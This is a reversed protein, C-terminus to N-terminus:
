KRTRAASVAKKKKQVPSSKTATLSYEETMDYVNFEGTYSGKFIVGLEDDRLEYRVTFIEDNQTLTMSGGQAAYEGYGDTFFWTGICYDDEDVFGDGISFDCFEDELFAEVTYTGSKPADAEESFIELVIVNGTGEWTATDFSSDSLYICWNAIGEPQGDYYEGWYEMDGYDFSNTEVIEYGNPGENNGNDGNGGPNQPQDNGNDGNGGPNQPQNNENGGNNGGNNGCNCNCSCQNEPQNDKKCSAASLAIAVIAMITFIRKM